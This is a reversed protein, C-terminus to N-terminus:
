NHDGVFGYLICAGYEETKVLYPLLSNGMSSYSGTRTIFIKEELSVWSRKRPYKNGMRMGWPSLDEVFIGEGSLNYDYAM